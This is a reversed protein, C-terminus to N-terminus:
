LYYRMIPRTKSRRAAVKFGAKIFASPIGTWAFAAPISKSYPVSPYGEIIKAKKKRCYDIVGKLLETSVGQRRYPKAIFFCTVSWVPQEDVPKLVRSNELRVFKERPAVACWGIPEDKLYAIIGIPEKDKVLRHMSKKNGAGKQRAFEKPQVRWSMCWCGGCGGREGMLTEFDKWRKEELPHFKLDKIRIASDNM